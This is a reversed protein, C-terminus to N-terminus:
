GMNYPPPQHPYPNSPNMQRLHAVLAASPQQGQPGGQQQMALMQQRMRQQQQFQTQQQINGQLGQAGTRSYPPAPGTQAANMAGITNMTVNPAQQMYNPRNGQAIGRYDAQAGRPQNFSQQQVQFMGSQSNQMMQQNTQMNNQMLNNPNNGYNNYQPNIGTQMNGYTQQFMAQNSQMNSPHQQRLPQRPFSHRQMPPYGGPQPNPGTAAQSMFQNLPHRQRLMNSLAQKSQNFQTPRELRNVNNMQQPYFGQQQQNYWQQQNQNGAAFQQGPQQQMGTSGQAYGSMHGMQSNATQMGQMSAMGQQNQNIPAQSMNLAPVPLQGAPGKMKRQRRQGKGRGKGLTGLPSQDVSSPTDAKLESESKDPVPELDEPPLPPPELYYSAPKTLNHTHYKLLRHTEEYPLPRRQLKVAGFWTWSLPASSKMGELLDWTSVKQKDSVSLGHKKDVSDFSIKNGKNDTLCGTDVTVVETVIRPLPLLQRVHLFSPTHRDGLEKKLKKTLNQYM